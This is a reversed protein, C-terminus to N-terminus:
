RLLTSGDDPRYRVDDGNEWRKRVPKLSTLGRYAKRLHPKALFCLDSVPIPEDGFGPQCPVCSYRIKKREEERVKAVLEERFPDYEDEGVELASAPCVSVCQGCGDCKDTDIHELYQFAIGHGAQGPHRCAQGLGNNGDPCGEKHNGFGNTKRIQPSPGSCFLAEGFM